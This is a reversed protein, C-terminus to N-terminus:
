KVSSLLSNPTNPQKEMEPKWQAPIHLACSGPFVARGARGRGGNRGLQAKRGKGVSSDARHQCANTTCCAPFLHSNSGAIKRVLLREGISPQQTVVASSAAGSTRAFGLLREHAREEEFWKRLGRALQFNGERSEMGQKLRESEWWRCMAAEKYPVKVDSQCCHILVRRQVQQWWSCIEQLGRQGKHGRNWRLAWRCVRRKRKGREDKKKIRWEIVAVGSPKEAETSFLM